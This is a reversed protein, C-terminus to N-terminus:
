FYAFMHWCSSRDWNRLPFVPNLGDIILYIYTILLLIPFLNKDLTTVNRASKVLYSTKGDSKVVRFAASMCIIKRSAPEDSVGRREVM